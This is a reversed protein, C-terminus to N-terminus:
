LLTKASSLKWWLPRWNFGHRYCYPALSLAPIRTPFHRKYYWLWHPCSRALWPNWDRNFIIPTVGKCGPQQIRNFPVTYINGWIDQQYQAFTPQAHTLTITHSQMHTFSMVHTCTITHIHTSCLKEPCLVKERRNILESVKWVKVRDNQHWKCYRKIPNSIPVSM